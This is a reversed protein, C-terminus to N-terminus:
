GIPREVQTVIFEVRLSQLLQEFRVGLKPEDDHISVTGEESGDRAVSTLNNMLESDVEGLFVTTTTLRGQTEGTQAVFLSVVVHALDCFQGHLVENGRIFHIHRPQHKGPASIKLRLQAQAVHKVLTQGCLDYFHDVDTISAFVTKVLYPVGNPKGSLM